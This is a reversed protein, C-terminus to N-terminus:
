QLPTVSALVFHGRADLTSIGVPSPTSVETHWTGRLPLGSEVSFWTETVNSGTQGGSFTVRETVEVSGYKRHGVEIGATRVQTSTGRMLVTGTSLHNNSGTCTVPSVTGAVIRASVTTIEPHCAFTSTDDVSFAVFNWNYYGARAPSVLAGNRVCYDWSQWHFDSYDLKFEFCGGPRSTVTGPIGPGESQSKPPVSIAETGAGVYRYVGPAPGAGPDSSNTGGHQHFREIAVSTPVARAGSHSWLYTITGAGALVVLVVAGVLWRVLHPHSRPEPASAPAHDPQVM